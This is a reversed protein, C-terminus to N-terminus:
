QRDLQQRSSVAKVEERSRGALSIIGEQRYEEVPFNAVGAAAEWGLLAIAARDYARAALVEDDYYGVSMGSKGLAAVKIQVRWKRKKRDFSVGRYSSRLGSAPGASSSPQPRSPVTAATPLPTAASFISGAPTTSSSPLSSTVLPLLGAAGVAQQSAEWSQLWPMTADTIPLPM